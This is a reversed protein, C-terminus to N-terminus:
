RSHTCMRPLVWTPTQSFVPALTKPATFGVTGTLFNSGAGFSWYIYGKFVFNNVNHTADTYGVAICSTVSPRWDATGGNLRVSVSQGPSVM